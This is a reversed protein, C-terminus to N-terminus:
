QTPSGAQVLALGPFLNCPDLGPAGPVNITVKGGPTSNLPFSLNAGTFSPIPPFSGLFVTSDNTDTVQLTANSVPTGGGNFLNVLGQNAGNWFIFDFSLSFTPSTSGAALADSLPVATAVITVALFQIVRSVRACGRDVSMADGRKKKAARDNNVGMVGESARSQIALSNEVRHPTLM